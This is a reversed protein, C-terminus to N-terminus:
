GMEEEGCDVADAFVKKFITVGVNHGYTKSGEEGKEDTCHFTCYYPTNSGGVTSIHFHTLSIPSESQLISLQFQVEARQDLNQKQKRQGRGM